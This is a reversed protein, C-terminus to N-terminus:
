ENLTTLSHSVLRGEFGMRKLAMNVTQNNCSKLPGRDSSFVFERHGSIPKMIELLAIAQETLPIRHERRKKMRATPITWVKSFCLVAM